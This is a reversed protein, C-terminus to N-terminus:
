LAFARSRAGLAGPVRVLTSSSSCVALRLGNVTFESM